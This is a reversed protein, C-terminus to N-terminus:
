RRRILEILNLLEANTLDAIWDQYATQGDVNAFFWDSGEGGLLVDVAGDDFVTSANLEVGSLYAGTGNKLNAVRTAFTADSTWEAQIARFSRDDRYATTGAILIDDAGAGLLLDSGLGGILIDRGEGGFLIDAGEDGHLIDHGSGGRLLDNGEGGHLEASQQVAAAIIIADNGEQGYVIVRAAPGFTGITIENIAVSVKSAAAQGIAILDDGTTGGVVVMPKLNDNADYQVMASHIRVYRELTASARGDSDTVKVRVTYTGTSPFVHEVTAIADGTVRQDVTGNGDWDIAFTYELNKGTLSVADAAFTYELPQGRTAETTGTMEVRLEREGMPVDSAALHLGGGGGGVGFGLQSTATGASLPMHLGDIDFGGMGFGSGDLTLTSSYTGTTSIGLTTPTFQFGDEDAGSVGTVSFNGVTSFHLIPNAGTTDIYVADVDEDASTGLGVDSGDFYVDWTGATTTGLSTPTFVILDEDERTVGTVSVTGTTSLVVRGDPLVGIADINEATGSLGVDSGDFYFSWTGATNTGLTIPTFQLIDEGNGSLTSGTAGTVSFAGTTSVLITGDALIAFADIDESSQTLGVDSGDFYMTYFYTGNSNSTLRVIDADTFSVSSGTNGTLTGGATTSFHFLKTGATTIDNDLITYTHTAPSGLTANTPSSLTVLITENNEVFLDNNVSFTINRSTQGPTFTLTGSALTYDVGGGTATGGTVAYNVTITQTSAASLTVGLDVPSFAETGSSSTTAFRVTPAEDDTITYTHTANAGLTANTPASLTVLITESPEILTDNVIAVSISKSTEGPAFSLTGGALTYDVGGGTATGGTVAYNVTVTQGSAASLTVVLNAPSASELGSSSATSFTVTPTDNDNITYTHVTNTGLTANTPASLTVQITENVEVVTDNVITIPITRSTQGPSFTLTGSALTYDVGGGTATGGTVAYNVTITQGSATSLNVVLNAPTTGESGSSTTVAFAVTPAADNDNITYTHTTQAGLTANTPASLALQITENPEDLTDNIIAVPISKSTEGPAFTLTGNTLTYDVAGNTATGGTVAYNVTISRGSAASLNVVLNAPTTGESGSSTAAAFAVTPAADNDLITYTHTPNTGLVGNVPSSLSIQVTEDPEDITDDIISLPVNKSTEGPAFTLTGTTFTYDQGNTATGGSIAYNVTVAETSANSLTVGLNVSTVSESGSSSATTFSIAPVNDNDLITYTHTLTSGLTANSPASLTIQITENAEVITDNNITIPIPKSTEFPLFTLVGSTLTYDVGGGSATGGTVAYQITVTQGTPASLVVNINAPSTAESGSSSATQFAVSPPSKYGFIVEDLSPTVLSSNTSLDARYQFYRGVSGIPQGLGPVLTYATWSADPTPTNGSRGFLTVGTGAPTQTTQSTFSWVRDQGGDFIRSEFSGATTYPSMHLWDVSLTGGGVNFDSALPRTQATFTNAHSAMLTGDIYYDVTTANWDIRFRHSAGLWVGSLDTDIASTGNGTRAQLTNGASGTSFIAYPVENFSIGLGVHQFPSATAFTAVFEISSGVNYLADTGVRAGDTTLLGSAVTAAGGPAWPTVSWGAPITTGTFEAGVTPTLIVEGTTAVAVYTSTGPNGLSFDAFSGDTVTAALTTFSAPASAVDPFVGQNGSIDASRVRYYYTTNATLGTLQMSHSNVFASSSVTQNLLGPSTGYEVVSDAAENTAWTITASLISAVATVNSIAPAVTDPIYDATYAGSLATFFAYQIGKITQTTYSITAGDRKLTTLLGSDSFLPLMAQLNNAGAAQNISFSLKGTLKNLSLNQFSSNNRADLWTVMQRASVVPVGRALASAIVADSVSSPPVDTHANVTYVGYYGESGIARDLLTDITFPQIQGSEDTIQTAAQYVDILTGDQKAFRMPMASGTFLGPTNNVWSPPYFYYTTDIRIGQAAQVQPQTDYDSWVAAHTRNAIPAPIGPFALAFQTLQSSYYSALESFSTYNAGGTNTHISVDFGQAHYSMAQANTLPVGPYVFSTSRITEWNDVSGGPPSQSIYQDFRGATGGSGHDDGTMMVVAKEGNPFYWFRPVVTADRTMQQILNVLLRQQEDAQPIAIKDRDVWDPQPDFSANGYFLDNPRIPADGDRDQGAWAPNGQRTYVVSRALDYTFAAAQGGFVGVNHLTVAPNTSGTTANNFLTAIATAGNLTYRDATGHFQITQGVIGSGATTNTDVQLYANSLTASADTLGLLGALQKDPRMAILNGGANVWDSFMTVQAATLAMEGLIVLSQGALRESTVLSIDTVTYANMGENRLIEGFYRGFPNSASGIAMVPGGPGEDAPPADIVAIPVVPTSAGLNGSDDVARAVILYSGLVTPTWTYSWSSRGLARRWTAGGDLSIEVGGVVGGVDSATGTITVPVNIQINTGGSPSTIVATAPTTDTSATAAILGAQISGPQVGMDAFLNVTAQQMRVDSPTGPFDHTADLGWSWQVTGAGFVIAGSTHRYMTLAHNATGTAYTSGYDQLYPVGSITTNSLRILGAPRYGNDLDEDWEYGLTGNPLTAQQGPSLTAISTNRWFRLSGEEQPVNIPDSRYGNVMFLQGTLANEPRGGDAPPSFRPDRWTGTWVNPEPDIKAGAHTEKYSVLTRYPTGTGDISTEWRTKWFVENGSFFALDVGANRAAEVNTRQQGSWYEDHGVSLFTQHELLESGLRDTDMGAFYSVNYGNAELWRVMPYEANFVWDERDYERTTFPRNYSVKYARGAPSGVYLSNGGWRNYAQWTTDATQFLMDSGGDDDRVIFMVHNEGFTGDERVLKAFYIGSTADTPIAWTASVSWNGADVLGTTPDVIAPPQVQPLTSSPQVTTVKRAGLGGYYGMRYIDLRYDTANTNIKFPVTEGQNFSFGSAYGEINASGVGGVLDWESAPNGPLLNENVIPNGALLTRDELRELKLFRTPL